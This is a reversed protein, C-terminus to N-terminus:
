GRCGAAEIMGNLKQEFEAEPLDYWGLNPHLWLFKEPWAARVEAFIGKASVVVILIIDWMGINSIM